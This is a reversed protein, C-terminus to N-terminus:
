QNYEECLDFNKDRILSNGIEHSVAVTIFFRSLIFTNIQTKLRNLFSSAQKNGTKESLGHLTSALVRAKLRRKLCLALLNEKYRHAHIIDIGKTKFKNAAALLISFFSHEQEPIVTLDIDIKALNSALIGDNLCIAYIKLDPFQSLRSLLTLVMVEAGAWLDGSFIHLIRM